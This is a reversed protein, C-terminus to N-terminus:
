PRQSPTQVADARSRARLREFIRWIQPDGANLRANERAIQGARKLMDAAESAQGQYHLALGKMMLQVYGSGPGHCAECTVDQARMVDLLEQIKQPEPLEGASRAGRMLEILAERRAPDDIVQTILVEALFPHNLLYIEPNVSTKFADTFWREVHERNSTPIYPAGGPGPTTHCGVCSSSGVFKLPAGMPSVSTLQEVKRAQPNQPRFPSARAGYSEILFTDKHLRWWSLIREIAKARQEPPDDFVFGFDSGTMWRIREIAEQRVMQEPSRLEEVSELFIEHYRDRLFEHAAESTVALPNGGHCATCGVQEFPMEDLVFIERHIENLDKLPHAEFGSVGQNLHCVTCTEALRGPDIVIKNLDLSLQTEIQLRDLLGVYGQEQRKLETLYARQWRRWAQDYNDVAVAVVTILMLVSIIAFYKRIM